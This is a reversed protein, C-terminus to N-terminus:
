SGDGRGPEFRAILARILEPDPALPAPLPVLGRVARVADYTTLARERLIEALGAVLALSGGLEELRVSELASGLSGLHHVYRRVSEVAAVAADANSTV